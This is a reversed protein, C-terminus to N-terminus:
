SQFYFCLHRKLSFASFDAFQIFIGVFRGVFTTFWNHFGVFIYNGRLNRTPELWIDFVKNEEKGVLERFCLFVCV